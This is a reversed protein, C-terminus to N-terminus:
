KFKELVNKTNKIQKKNNKDILDLIKKYDEVMRNKLNPNYMLVAPHMIPYIKVSNKEYVQSFFSKNYKIKYYDLIFKGSFRGLTVILKPKLYEIEKKLYKSCINIEEKKPDRNKPPRCKVINGIYFHSRDLNSKQLLKDLIKGAKGVFPKNKEDENKGPAEGIIINKSNENGGYLVPQNCTKYLNCKKCNKIERKLEDLM